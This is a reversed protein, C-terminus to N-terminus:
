FAGAYQRALTAGFVPQAKVVGGAARSVGFGPALSVPCSGTGMYELAAALSAENPNGLPLSVDDGAACDVPLGDYYGGFGVANVSRFAIARLRYSSDCFDFAFQGVPKGYTTSGVLALETDDFYPELGNIVLESASASGGSTIFVIRDLDLANAEPQFSSTENFAPARDNNFQHLVFTDGVHGPGALLSALIEAVSVLGGGNYRLDIVVRNVGQTGIDAFASSLADGASNIFTNFLVYAVDNAGSDQVYDVLPVPDISVVAKRLSVPALPDGDVDEVTFTVRHGVEEPGLAESLGENAMIQAVSRGNLAVLRFGREFGADQAPSGAYVQSFRIEGGVQLMSFGFGVFEGADFFSAEDEPTTIYSFHRDFQGPRYRLFDLLENADTFDGLDLNRYKNFQDAEDNWLYWERMIDRVEEKGSGSFCDADVALSEVANGASDCAALLVPLIAPILRLSVARLWTEM